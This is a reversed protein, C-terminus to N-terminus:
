CGFAKTQSTCSEGSCRSTTAKRHAVDTLTTKTTISIWVEELSLCPRSIKLLEPSSFSNHAQSTPSCRPRQPWSIASRPKIKLHNTNAPNLTNRSAGITHLYGITLLSRVRPITTVRCFFVVDRLYSCRFGRERCHIAKTHISVMQVPCIFCTQMCLRRPPSPPHAPPSRKPSDSAEDILQRRKSNRIGTLRTAHTYDTERGAADERV